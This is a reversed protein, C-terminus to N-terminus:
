PGKPAREQIMQQLARFMPGRSAQEIKEKDPLDPWSEYEGTLLQVELDVQEQTAEPMARYFRDLEEAARQQTESDATSLQGLYVFFLTANGADFADALAGASPNGSGKLFGGLGSLDPPKVKPLKPLAIKPLKAKPISFRWERTAGNGKTDSVELRVTHERRSLGIGGARWRITDGDRKVKKEKGDVRLKVSAFDIGSEDQLRASITPKRETVESADSPEVDDITPPTTDPLRVTVVKPPLRCSEVKGAVGFCVRVDVQEGDKLTQDSCNRAGGCQVVSEPWVFSIKLQQAAKDYSESISVQRAQSNSDRASTKQINVFSEGDNEVLNDVTFTVTEGVTVSSPGNLEIDRRQQASGIQAMLLVLVAAGLLGRRRIRGRQVLEKM